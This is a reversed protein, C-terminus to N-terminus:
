SFGKQWARYEILEYCIGYAGEIVPPRDATSAARKRRLRMMVRYLDLASPEIRRGLAAPVMSEIAVRRVQFCPFNCEQPQGELTLDLFVIKIGSKFKERWTFPAAANMQGNQRVRMLGVIYFKLSLPVSLFVTLQASVSQVRSDSFMILRQM